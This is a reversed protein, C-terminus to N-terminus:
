HRLGKFTSSIDVKRMVDQFESPRFNVELEIYTAPIM